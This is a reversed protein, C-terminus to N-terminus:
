EEVRTVDTKMDGEIHFSDRYVFKECHDLFIM